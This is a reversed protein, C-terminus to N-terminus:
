SLTLYFPPAITALCSTSLHALSAREIFEQDIVGACAQWSASDVDHGQGPLVIDRSVPYFKQAGAWNRPQEIPDGAGNFALVPVRSVTLQLNGVAAASKPILPCVVQWWKADELDVHYAFSARQGALAAPQDSAWSEDCTIAAPMMLNTGSPSPSGSAQGANIVTTMAAAKNRATALTHVAAPILDENYGYM